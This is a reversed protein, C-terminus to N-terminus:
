VLPQAASGHPLYACLHIHPFVVWNAKLLWSQKPDAKLKKVYASVKFFIKSCKKDGGEM